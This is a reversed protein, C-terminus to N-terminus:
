ALSDVMPFSGANEIDAPPTSEVRLLIGSGGLAAGPQVDRLRDGVFWSRVPDLDHAEIAQRYLLTGPKRCECAEGFDPHHPCHYTADVRAGEAALLKDVRMRVREYDQETLLGRAIGSQNTVVVM